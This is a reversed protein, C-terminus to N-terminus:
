YDEDKGASSAVAGPQAVPEFVPSLIALAREDNNERAKKAAEEIESQVFNGKQQSFIYVAQMADYNKEPMATALVDTVIARLEADDLWMSLRFAASDNKHMLAQKIARMRADKDLGCAGLFDGSSHGTEIAKSLVSECAKKSFKGSKVFKNLLPELDGNPLPFMEGMQANAIVALKEVLKEDFAALRDAVDGLFEINDAAAAVTYADVLTKEDFYRAEFFARLPAKGGAGTDVMSTKARRGVKAADLVQQRVTQVTVKQAFRPADLVQKLLTVFDVGTPSEKVVALVQALFEEASLPIPLEQAKKISEKFIERNVNIVSKGVIKSIDELLGRTSATQPMSPLLELSYGSIHKSYERWFEQTQQAPFRQPELLSFSQEEPMRILGSEASILGVLSALQKKVRDNDEPKGHAFLEDLGVFFQKMKEPDSSLLRTPLDYTALSVVIMHSKKARLRSVIEPPSLPEKTGSKKMEEMMEVRSILASMINLYNAALEAHYGGSFCSSIVFINTPLKSFFALLQVFQLQPMNAILAFSKQAAQLVSASPATTGAHQTKGLFLQVAPSAVTRTEAAMGHGLIMMNLSYPTATNFLEIISQAITMKDNSVPEKLQAFLEQVKEIYKEPATDDIKQLVAMNFALAVNIGMTKPVFLVFRHDDRLQSSKTTAFYIDFKTLDIVKALLFWNYSNYVTGRDSMAYAVIDKQVNEKTRQEFLTVRNDAFLQDYAKLQKLDAIQETVASSLDADGWLRYLTESFANKVEECSETLPCAEIYKQAANNQDETLVDAKLQQYLYMLLLPRAVVENVMVVSNESGLVASLEYPLAGNDISIAGRSPASAGFEFAGSEDQDQYAIFVSIPKRKPAASDVMGLMSVAPMLLFGVWLLRVVKMATGRKSRM